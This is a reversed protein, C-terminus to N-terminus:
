EYYRMRKREVMYVIRYGITKLFNLKTKELFTKMPKYSYMPTVRRSVLIGKLIRKVMKAMNALKVKITNPNKDYMVGFNFETNEIVKQEARREKKDLLLLNKIYEECLEDLFDESSYVSNIFLQYYKDMNDIIVKQTNKVINYINYDKSDNDSLVPQVDNNVLKYRVTSGHNASALQEILLTNQIFYDYYKTKVPYQSFILGNKRNKSNMMGSETQGIYYGKISYKGDLAKYIADQITGKWGVDVICLKKDNSNCKERVYTNLLTKQENRVQDYVRLFYKNSILKLFEASNKFNAIKGVQKEFESSIISDIDNKNFGITALFDRISIDPYRSFISEFDESDISKLSAAVTAMRSVYMYETKITYDEVVNLYRDFLKKLFQGERALFVVNRIHDKKLENYLKETFYYFYFSYGGFVVTSKSTDYMKKLENKIGITDPYVYNKINYPKLVAFIGEKKANDVDSKKNNGYMICEEKPYNDKLFEFMSGNSKRRDIDSSVYIDKFMNELKFKKLFRRFAKSPLYFDSVLVISKGKNYLEKLLLTTEEDLYQVSLEASIDALLHKEYFDSESMVSWLKPLRAYMDHIIFEYSAENRFKKSEKSHEESAVRANFYEKSTYISYEKTFNKAAIMKVTKENVNRHVLTDFYDVFIYNYKLFKEKNM